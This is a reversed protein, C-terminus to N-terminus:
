DEELAEILKYYIEPVPEAEPIRHYGSRKKKHGRSNTQVHHVLKVPPDPGRVDIAADRTSTDM